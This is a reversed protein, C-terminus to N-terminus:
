LKTTPSFMAALEAIDLEAPKAYGYAASELLERYQRCFREVFNHLRRRLEISNNNCILIGTVVQHPEFLITYNEKRLTRMQGSQHLIEDTMKGISSLAGGFLEILEDNIGAGFNERFLHKAIIVASDNDAVLLAIPKAPKFYSNNWTLIDQTSIIGSPEPAGAKGILVRKYGKQFMKHIIRDLPADDDILDVPGRMLQAVPVDLVDCFGERAERRKVLFEVVDSHSIVFYKGKAAERIIIASVRKEYMMRVVDLFNATSPLWYVYPTMIDSAVPHEVSEQSKTKM